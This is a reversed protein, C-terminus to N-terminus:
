LGRWRWLRALVNAPEREHLGAGGVVTKRDWSRCVWSVMVIGHRVTWFSSASENDYTTPPGVIEIVEAKTMGKQVRDIGRPAHGAVFWFGAALAVLLAFCLIATRSVRMA